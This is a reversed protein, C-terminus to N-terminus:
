GKIVEIVGGEGLLVDWIGSHPSHTETARVTISYVSIPTVPFPLPPQKKPSKFIKFKYLSFHTNKKVLIDVSYALILYINKWVLFKSIKLIGTSSRLMKNSLDIVIYIIM